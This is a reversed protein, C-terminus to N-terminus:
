QYWELPVIDDFNISATSEAEEEARQLDEKTSAVHKCRERVFTPTYRHVYPCPFASLCRGKNFHICTAVSDSHKVHLFTCGTRHPCSMRLFYDCVPIQHPLLAHSGNPCKDGNRCLGNLFRYCFSIRRHSDDGDHNFKCLAGAQCKKNQMYEYCEHNNYGNTFVPHEPVSAPQPVPNADTYKDRRIWSLTGHGRVVYGKGSEKVMGQFRSNSSPRALPAYLTGNSSDDFTNDYHAARKQQENAVFGRKKVPFTRVIGEQEPQQPRQDYTNGELKSLELFKQAIEHQIPSNIYWPYAPTETDSMEVDAFREDRPTSAQDTDYNEETTTKESPEDMEADSESAVAEPHYANEDNSDDSKDYYLRIDTSSPAPTVVEGEESGEQQEERQRSEEAIKEKLKSMMKRQLKKRFEEPDFQKAFAQLPDDETNTSSTESDAKKAPEAEPKKTSTRSSSSRVEPSRRRNNRERSSRRHHRSAVPSRSRRRSDPSRRRSVAPSVRRRPLPSRRRESSERYRQREIPTRSRRRPAPSRSRRRAVPSRSRRRAAPSRSRRRSAIPSRERRRELPSRSRHVPRRREPSRTRQRSYRGERDRRNQSGRDYKSYKDLLEDPSRSYPRNRSTKPPSLQRPVHEDRRPGEFPVPEPQEPVLSVRRVTEAACDGIIIVGDDSTPTRISERDDFHNEPAEEQRPYQKDWRSGDNRRPQYSREGNEVLLSPMPPPPPLILPAHPDQDLLIVDGGGPASLNPPQPPPALHSPWMPQQVQVNDREFVRWSQSPPPQQVYSPQGTNFFNHM